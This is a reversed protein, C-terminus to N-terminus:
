IGRLEFGALDPDSIALGLLMEVNLRTCAGPFREALRRAFWVATQWSRPLVVHLRPRPLDCRASWETVRM